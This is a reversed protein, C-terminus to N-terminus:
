LHQINIGVLLSIIILFLAFLTHMIKLNLKGRIKLGLIFGIFSLFIISALLLFDVKLVNNNLDSFVALTSNLFILILSAHAAQKVNFKQFLILVPVILFGGGVGLLGTLSGVLFAQVLLPFYLMLKSRNVLFNLRKFKFNFLMSIGSSFLFFVFVLLLIKESILEFLYNRSFYVGLISIIAFFLVSRIKHIKFNKTLFIGFLSTFFVIILSYSTSIKFSISFFFMLIPITVLSGGAGFLGFLMGSLIFFIYGIIIEM